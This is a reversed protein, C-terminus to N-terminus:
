LENRVINELVERVMGTVTDPKIGAMKRKLAVQKINCLLTASLPISTRVIKEDTTSDKDEAALEKQAQKIKTKFEPKSNM